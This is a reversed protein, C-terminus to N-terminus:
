HGAIWFLPNVVFLLCCSGQLTPSSPNKAYSISDRRAKQMRTGRERWERARRGKGRERGGDHRGDMRWKVTRAMSDEASSVATAITVDEWFIRDFTTTFCFVM